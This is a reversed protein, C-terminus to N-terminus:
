QRLLVVAALILVVILSLTVPVEVKEWIKEMTQKVSEKFVLAFGKPNAQLILNVIKRETLLHEPRGVIEIRFVLYGEHEYDVRRVFFEEQHKELRWEIIGAQVARRWTGGTTTFSFDLRDGTQLISQTETGVLGLNGLTPTFKDAM